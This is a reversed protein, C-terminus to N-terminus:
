LPAGKAHLDQNITTKGDTFNLTFNWRSDSSVGLNAEVLPDIVSLTESGDCPPAILEFLLGRGAQTQPGSKTVAVLVFHLKLNEALKTV